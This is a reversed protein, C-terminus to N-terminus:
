KGFMVWAGASIPTAFPKKWCSSPEVLSVVWVNLAPGSSTEASSPPESSAPKMPELGAMLANALDLPSATRSMAPEVEPPAWSTTEGSMVEGSCSLPLIMAVGCSPLVCSTASFFHSM